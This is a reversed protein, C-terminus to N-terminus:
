DRKQWVLKSRARTATTYNHRAHDVVGRPFDEEIVLVNDWESGQSKHGTIGYGYSFEFPPDGLYKTKRWSYEQQPDLFKEGTKVSTLDIPIRSFKHGDETTIDTYMVPIPDPCIWNPGRKTGMVINDIYGITGNMLPACDKDSSCFEWQNHLCIIKDGVQPNEDFGKIQRMNNNIVQKKTNTACIIQDAWNFMGASVDGKNILMVQENKVPFQTIPKRERIWMSFRIIESDYAQRMIEDLFIHPHDLLHNDESEYIPPLQFPDGCAIVHVNHTMLQDWMTKPLMSIEDVVILKFDPIASRPSYTYTGNPMPQAKYLLKHATMANPCGKQELVQSAKGTFAVYGVEEPKLNLAAIIFKILTSKGTGAYGGIVTYKEHARYREVAIRLGQEQKITLTM